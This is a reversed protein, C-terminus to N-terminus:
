LQQLGKNKGAVQCQQSREVPGWQEVQQGPQQLCQKTGHGLYQKLILAGAMAEITRGQARVVAARSREVHQQWQVVQMALNGEGRNPHVDWTGEWEGDGQQALELM